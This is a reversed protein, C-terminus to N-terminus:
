DFLDICGVSLYWHTTIVVRIYLLIVCWKDPVKSIMWENWEWVLKHTQINVKYTLREEVMNFARTWRQLGGEGIALWNHDGHLVTAGDTLISMKNVCKEVNSCGDRLISFQLKKLRSIWIEHIPIMSRQDKICDLRITYWCKKESKLKLGWVITPEINVRETACRSSTSTAVAALSYGNGGGWFLPSWTIM